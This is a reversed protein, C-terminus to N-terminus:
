CLPATLPWRLVPTSTTLGRFAGMRQLSKPRVVLSHRPVWGPSLPLTRSWGFTDCSTRRELRSFRIARKMWSFVGCASRSRLNFWIAMWCIFSRVSSPLILRSSAASLCHCQMGVEGFRGEGNEVRSDAPKRRILGQQLAAGRWGASGERASRPPRLGIRNQDGIDEFSVRIRNNPQKKLWRTLRHYESM